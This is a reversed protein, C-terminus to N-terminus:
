IEEVRKPWIDEETNWESIGENLTKGETHFVLNLVWVICYV